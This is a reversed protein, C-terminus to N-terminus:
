PVGPSDIGKHRRVHLTKWKLLPQDRIRDQLGEDPTLVSPDVEGKELLLDLFALESGTFPLVASLGRRCDRVLKKGYEEGNERGRVAGRRLAPLLQSSLEKRDFGIDSTSVTRWDRRDMAGYVVFAIRLREPDLGDM